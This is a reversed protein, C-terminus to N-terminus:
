SCRAPRDAGAARRRGDLRAVPRRRGLLDAAHRRLRLPVRLRRRRERRAHLTLREANRELLEPVDEEHFPVEGRRLADIKEPVVDRIVVEHGLEAFCAGTVLGVWGAGFIGVKGDRRRCKLPHKCATQSGQRDRADDREVALRAAHQGGLLHRRPRAARGHAPALGLLLPRVRPRRPRAPLEQRRARARRGLRDGRDGLVRQRRRSSSGCPRTSTSRTSGTSACPRTAPLTDPYSNRELVTPVYLPFPVKKQLGALLEKGPGADRPRVRPQHVPVNAQPLPAITATSRRASCSSSCRARTSARATEPEHAAAQRVDAPQMLNQLAAAAAKSRRQAPDYYIKTHFYNQAANRRCATRRCDADQLRAPRAPVLHEGGRRRRRQREPGHGDGVLAAADEAQDQSRASGRERGEVVAVDPNQFQDVATQIDASSATCGISCVVNEIKDQFLHGGPLAQAFLAYSIVQDGQLARGGEGVEINRTITSVLSPLKEFSFNRAVQERFARVFEQQRAVRYLDSDTHRFRVFDLAQEGSLLQYGPQLNINAYDNLYSGTNKNYYRRDVDMWVGGLKDVVEKFGHFNVTILYNIPLGTLHKVTLLTGKPAAARTPRTSGTPRSSTASRTPASRRLLDARRPRAPVLAALDDEDGPRGPDADDHGLALAPRAEVGARHDYGIVLAIAAQKALPIDLAEAASKVPSRTRASPQSRSTSASTRAAPSASRSRPSRRPVDILLIRGVLGLGTRPPRRRSGTVPSPPQGRRAPLGRQRQRQGRRRARRREETDDAYVLRPAWRPAQARCSLRGSQDAWTRAFGASSARRGARGQARRLGRAPRPRHPRGRLLAGAPARPLHRQRAGGPTM